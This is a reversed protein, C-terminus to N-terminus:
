ATTSLCKEAVANTKKTYCAYYTYGRKISYAATYSTGSIDKTEVKKYGNPGRVILNVNYKSNMTSSPSTVRAWYYKHGAYTGTRLQLTGLSGSYQKYSSVGTAKTPAGTSRAPASAAQAAPMAASAVAVIAATVCIKALSTGGRVKFM